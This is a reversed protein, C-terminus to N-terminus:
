LIEIFECTDHLKGLGKCLTNSNTLPGWLGLMIHRFYIQKGIVIRSTHWCKGRFFFM